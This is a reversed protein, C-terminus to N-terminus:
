AQDSEAATEDYIWQLYAPNGSVIPTAIVCPVVYPHERDAIDTIAPVLAARTHLSVRARQHDHVAGDWRYIARIPAFNHGAAALRADVLRRTFTALWDPDAATIVVEVCQLDPPSSV